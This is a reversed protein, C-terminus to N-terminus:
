YQPFRGRLGVQQSLIPIPHVGLIDKCLRSQCGLAPCISPQATCFFGNATHQDKGGKMGAYLYPDTLMDDKFVSNLLILTLIFILPRISKILIPSSM